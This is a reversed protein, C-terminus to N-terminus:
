AAAETEFSRGTIHLFADELTPRALTLSQMDGALAGALKPILAAGDPTELHISGDVVAPATGVLEAIRRTLAPTDHGTITVVDGGVRGKLNEPTDDAVVNGQDLLIVRDCQEAEDMIHTTLLVTVGDSRRIADLQNWLERRAAPDLGTSPEDLLLVRPGPLIGKAIEVRRALGGSLTEIRDASRDAIGVRTLLDHARRRLEAGRLGYLHGHHKLNEAATLKRDLSPAQFVVGLARRVGAPAADVDLGCVRVTGSDAALLTALIRFLTTKGGGNPGLLAVIDGPEVNFSVANLATRDGFRKTVGQVEVIPSSM